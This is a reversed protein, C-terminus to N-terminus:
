EAMAEITITTEQEDGHTFSTPAELEMEWQPSTVTSVNDCLLNQGSDTVIVDYSGTGASGGTGGEGSSAMLRGVNEGVAGYTWASGDSSWGTCNASVDINVTSGNTVTFYDNGTNESSSTAIVGFNYNAPANSITIYAPTANVTVSQTTAAYAVPMDSLAMWVCPVIVAVLVIIAIIAQNWFEERKLM